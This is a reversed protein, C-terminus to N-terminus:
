RWRYSEKAVIRPKPKAKRDAPFVNPKKLSAKLKFVQIRQDKLLRLHYFRFALLAYLPVMGFSQVLFATKFLPFFLAMVLLLSHILVQLLLIKFYPAFRINPSHYRKLIQFATIFAGLFLLLSLITAIQASIELM